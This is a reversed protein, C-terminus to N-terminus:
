RNPFKSWDEDKQSSASVKTRVFAELSFPGKQGAKDVACIKYFYMKGPLVTHDAFMAHDFAKVPYDIATHGYEESGKIVDTSKVGGMLTTADPVFGTNISRHVEYSAIDSECATRFLLNVFNHASIPSVLIARLGEVKLPPLNKQKPSLTTVRVAASPPGLNNWRDVVVVRYYYTTKPELTNRIWGGSNLRPMDTFETSSTQGVLNLLTPECQADTDRYLNFHSLREKDLDCEWKLEVRMDATALAQPAHVIGLVSTPESLVRITKIGFPRLKLTFTSGPGVSFKFPRDDEVLSTEIVTSIRSMVPLSVQTAAEMGATEHFRLIIGRGNAEAPKITSCSINPADVSMFGGRAPWTGEHPGDAHWALLPQSVQRGFQDAQGAKWDGPHSRLSWRFDVPGRQDVPINVDFMNNLLYLYVRSNKPYEQSRNFIFEKGVWLMPSSTPQGYSVLSGEIPCITVGYDKNSLDTFSRIAYHATCSGEFQKRYPEIVAGPLEHHISFNPVSLPLAVYIAEKNLYPSKDIHIAFDIQKTEHYLIVTQEINEAGTAKGKITLVDAVPGREISVNAQTMRYWDRKSKEKNVLRVWEYLYQNFGHPANPEVLELNLEKDYLSKVDGTQRDIQMRYFRGEMTNALASQVPSLDEKHGEEVRYVSYGTAPVDSARFIISGDPLRQWHVQKGSAVDFLLAGEPLKLRKSTVVDTRTHPLPNFVLVNQKSPLAILRSLRELANERVRNQLEEAEAIMERNEELETEYWRLEESSEGVGLRGNTHEHYQLLRHYAQYLDMWPYGGPTLVQALTALKETTPLTENLRRARGLLRADTADQDSWQNNGDLSFTKINVQKLEAAIADFYMDMTASILKPYSYQSNWKHIRNAITRKVPLFDGGDQSLFCSFPWNMKEHSRVLLEIRAPDQDDSPHKDYPDWLLSHREYTTARVLLSQGDPGQWYFAPERGPAYIPQGVESDLDRFESLLRVGDVNPMALRNYGHFLYDFGAEKAYTALPLTLGIVDDQQVTKGKPSGLLDPAHRGSIYFLRALLEHGLQETSATNHLGGIQIRGERIRRGLEKAEEKGFFNIFSTIPEGTEIMYRYQDNKPWDDTERCFQLPLRINAHRITTRLRHPYDGFGLDHHSYSVCYVTWKKQPQWIVEQRALIQGSSKQLVQVKLLTPLSIDALYIPRTSKGTPAEGLEETYPASSGFTIKAVLALPAASNNLHLIARQRLPDGERVKPFLSTPEIKEVRVKSQGVEQAVGSPLLLAGHLCVLASSVLFMRFPIVRKM